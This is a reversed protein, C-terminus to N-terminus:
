ESTSINLEQQSPNELAPVLDTRASELDLSEPGQKAEGYGHSLDMTNKIFTSRDIEFFDLLVFMTARGAEPLDKPLVLDRQRAVRNFDRALGFLSNYVATRGFFEALIEVPYEEWTRRVANRIAAPNSGTSAAALRVAIETIRETGARGSQGFRLGEGVRKQREDASLFAADSLSFDLSILFYSLTFYLYRIAEVVREGRM